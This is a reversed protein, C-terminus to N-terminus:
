RAVTARETLTTSPTALRVVYVGSPLGAADLTVSHEGAARLGDTLTAVRRGLLDFVEVRADEATPLTFGVQATTAVPNPYVSNLRYTGATTWEEAATSSVFSATITIPSRAAENAMMSLYSRETIFVGPVSCISPDCDGGMICLEDYGGRAKNYVIYAIAGAKAANEAKTIFACGGRSILAVTGAVEDTNEFPSCGDFATGAGYPGDDGDADIAQTYRYPGFPVEDEFQAGFYQTTLAPYESDGLELAADYSVGSQATALIPLALLFATLLLRM